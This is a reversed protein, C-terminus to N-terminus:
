RWPRHSPECGTSEHPGLDTEHGFALKQTATSGPPCTTVYEPPLQDGGLSTAAPVPPSQDTEQGLSLDQRATSKEPRTRAQPPALQDRGSYM